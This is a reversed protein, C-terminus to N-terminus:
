THLLMIYFIYIYIYIYVCVTILIYRSSPLERTTRHNLSQAGLASASTQDRTLVNLDWM